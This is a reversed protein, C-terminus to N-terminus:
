ACIAESELIFFFNRRLADLLVAQNSVESAM